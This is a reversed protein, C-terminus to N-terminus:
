NSYLRYATTNDIFQLFPTNDGAVQPDIGPISSFAPNGWLTVELNVGNEDNLCENMYADGAMPTSITIMRDGIQRMVSTFLPNLDQWTSGDHEYPVGLNFIMVRPIAEFVPIKSKDSHINYALKTARNVEEGQLSLIYTPIGNETEFWDFSIIEEVIEIDKPFGNKTFIEDYDTWAWPNATYKVTQTSSGRSNLQSLMITSNDLSAFCCIQNCEIDDSLGPNIFFDAFNFGELINGDPNKIRNFNTEIVVAPGYKRSGFVSKVYTAIDSSVNGNEVLDWNSNLVPGMILDGNPLTPAFTIRNTATAPDIYIDIDNNVEINEKVVIRLPEDEVPSQFIAAITYEGSGMVVIEEDDGALDWYSSNPGAYFLSYLQLDEMEGYTLNISYVEENNRAVGKNSQKRQLLTSADTIEKKSFGKAPGTKSSITVPVKGSNSASQLPSSAYVSGSCVCM